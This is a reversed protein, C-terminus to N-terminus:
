SDWYTYLNRERDQQVKSSYYTTKTMTIFSFLTTWTPSFTKSTWVVFARNTVPWIKTRGRHSLWLIEFLSHVKMFVTMEQFGTGLQHIKTVFPKPSFFNPTSLGLCFFTSVQSVFSRTLNSRILLCEKCSSGKQVNRCGRCSGNRARVRM